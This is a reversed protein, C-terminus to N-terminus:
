KVELSGLKLITYSGQISCNLSLTGNESKHTGHALVNKSLEICFLTQNNLPDGFSGELWAGSEDSNLRIWYQKNRILLPTNLIVNTTAGTTKSLIILDTSHSAISEGIKMLKMKESLTLIGEVHNNFAATIILAIFGMAILTYFYNTGQTPM